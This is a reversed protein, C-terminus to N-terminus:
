PYESVQALLQVRDFSLIKTDPEKFTRVALGIFELTPCTYPFSATRPSFIDSSFLGLHTGPHKAFAIAVFVAV